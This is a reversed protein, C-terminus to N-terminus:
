YHDSSIPTAIVSGGYVSAALSLAGVLVVLAISV